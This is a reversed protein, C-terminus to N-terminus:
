LAWGVYIETAVTSSCNVLIWQEKCSCGVILLCVLPGL